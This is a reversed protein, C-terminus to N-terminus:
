FNPDEYEDVIEGESNTYFIPEHMKENLTDVFDVNLGPNEDLENDVDSKVNYFIDRIAYNRINYDM